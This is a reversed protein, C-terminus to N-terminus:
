IVGDPLEVLGAEELKHACVKICISCGMFRAFYPYCEELDIHTVVGNEKELPPQYFAKGPCSLICQKCTECFTRVDAMANKRTTPMPSADTSIISLRQRPGFKDSILLGHYGPTGLGARAAMVPFLVLGGYPHVPQAQYGQEQLYEALQNTADGLDRYVRIAEKGSAFHPSQAIADAQMEMGLVVANEFRVGLDKFALERPITTYGILGVDMAQARAEFEQWLDEAAPSTSRQLQDNRETIKYSKEVGQFVGTFIGGIQSFERVEENFPRWGVMDRIQIIGLQREPSTPLGVVSPEPYRDVLERERIFLNNEQRAATLNLVTEMIRTTLNRNKQM